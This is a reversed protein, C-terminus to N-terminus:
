EHRLAVLPDVASARRAPLWAAMAATFALAAISLALLRPDYVSLGFVLGSLIRGTALTLGIGVLTGAAMVPAIQRLVLAHIGARAAGLAMRIGIESTRSAVHFSLLGFLGTAALLLALVGFAASLWALLRNEILAADKASDLTMYHEVYERGRSQVVRRLAPPPLGADTTSRLLLVPYRQRDPHQWFNVYVTLPKVDDPNELSFQANGVVGVIRLRQYTEAEGVRIHQGIPSNAGLLKAVSESVIAVPEADDRRFGEGAILPMGLTEFFRESTAMCQARTDASLRTDEVGAITDTHLGTWFPAFDALGVSSVGPLSEAQQLLERYYPGAPLSAYGGALPALMAEAVGASRLGLNMSYLHGASATFMGSGAVLALTLAVQFALLTKQKGTGPGVIGRGGATRVDAGGLRTAQWAPFLGLTAAVLSLVVGLFLLAHADVPLEPSVRFLDGAARIMVQRAWQAFLLGGVAGAGVLVASQLVFLRAVSAQSAGLALRVAMERQRGLGRALLLSTLNVAAILLVCGCIGMVTYLPQGFRARLFSNAGHVASTVTFKRSLYDQRQATGYGPPVNDELLQKQIVNMRARLQTESVEPARRAITNIFFYVPRDPKPVFNLPLQQLPIIVDSSSGLRFGTFRPDVVGIVTFTAGKLQIKKGLIDPSGALSGRWYADTLLAVGAAGRRDDALDFPRGIQVRLGLTAFCDGTMALAAASGVGGSAELPLRSEIFGCVGRLASERRLSDLITSMVAGPRGAKDLTAIQVLDGPREVPLSQFFLSDILSFVALNSGIGLALLLVAVMTFGRTKRLSRVTHRLDRAFLAFWLSYHIERLDEKVQEAGGFEQRARRSAEAPPMGAATYDSVQREIHDRLEADLEEELRNKRRWFM